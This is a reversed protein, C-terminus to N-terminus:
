VILRETSRRRSPPIEFGRCSRRGAGSGAPACPLVLPAKRGRPPRALPLPSPLGPVLRWVGLMGRREGGRSSSGWPWRLSRVLGRCSREIEAGPAGVAGAAGPHWLARSAPCVRSRRARAVRRAPCREASPSCGRLHGATRAGWPAAGPRAPGSGRRM